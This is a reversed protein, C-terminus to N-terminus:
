ARGDTPAPMSSTSTSTARGDTPAPMSSTSTSPARGDTPAPMSSTSPGDARDGSPEPTSSASTSTARGGARPPAASAGAGTARGDALPAAAPDVVIPVGGAPLPADLLARRPDGAPLASLLHHRALEDRADASLAWAQLRTIAFSDQATFTGFDVGLLAQEATTGAHAAGANVGAAYAELIARDRATLAAFAADLRWSLVRLRQDLPLADAGFLETLRGRAAHKMTQVQFARERGHMFGLGFALDAENDGFVHPIGRADVLVEVTSSLGASELRLPEHAPLPRPAYRSLCSSACLFVVLLRGPARM